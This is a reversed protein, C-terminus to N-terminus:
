RHRQTKAYKCPCSELHDNIMGVAQMLSYCITEGVFKFGRRKLFRSMTKAEDSTTPIDDLAQWHNMLPEGDVFQWLAKSLSGYEEILALCARANSFVSEIKRRNKIIGYNEIVEDVREPGYTALRALDYDEFAQRYADRKKLVILWCLGAQAGELTIFEFLDRTDYVPIGWEHDHYERELPHKIAWGCIMPERELEM